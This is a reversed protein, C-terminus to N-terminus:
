SFIITCEAVSGTMANKGGSVYQSINDGQINSINGFLSQNNGTSVMSNNLLSNDTALGLSKLGMAFSNFNAMLNDRIM